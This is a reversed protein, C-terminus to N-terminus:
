SFCAVIALVFDPGFDPPSFLEALMAAGLALATIKLTIM